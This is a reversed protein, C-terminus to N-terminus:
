KVGELEELEKQAQQQSNQKELQFKQDVVVQDKMFVDKGVIVLFLVFSFFLLWKPFIKKRDKSKLVALISFLIALAVPILAITGIPLVTFAITLTAFLLAVIIFTIRM